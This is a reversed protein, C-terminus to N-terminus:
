PKAVCCSSHESEVKLRLKLLEMHSHRGESIDDQDQEMSKIETGCFWLPRTCVTTLRFLLRSALRAASVCDTSPDVIAPYDLQSNGADIASLFGRDRDYRWARNYQNPCPM